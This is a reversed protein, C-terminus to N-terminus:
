KREFLLVLFAESIEQLALLSSSQFRLPTKTPIAQAIERVLRQFAAKPIIPTTTKQLRRIERLSAAIFIPIFILIFIANRIAFNNLCVAQSGDGYRNRERNGSKHVRLSLKLGEQHSALVPRILSKLQM